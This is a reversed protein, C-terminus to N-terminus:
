NTPVTRQRSWDILLEELLLQTNLSGPLQRLVQQVRELKTFMDQLDLQQAVTQMCGQLEPSALRQRIGLQLRIMDACGHYLLALLEGLESLPRSHWDAALAVPDATGKVIAELSGFLQAQLEKHHGALEAALLPAGGAHRLLVTAEALSQGRREALWTAAENGQQPPFRVTQCRSRITPLLFAPNATCLILLTNASPEELTKLLANAAHTNMREAPTIIAVKWGGYQPTLIQFAALQRVQDVSIDKRGEEPIIRLVDPHTGATFLRCSRCEGCPVLDEAPRECLLSRMLCDAIWDKGMGRPGTFLLAHPLTGQAHRSQLQRWQTMQWPLPQVPTTM